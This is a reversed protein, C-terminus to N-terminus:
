QKTGRLPLAHDSLDRLTRRFIGDHYSPASNLHTFYTGVVLRRWKYQKEQFVNKNLLDGSVSVLSYKLYALYRLEYIVFRFSNTMNGLMYDLCM